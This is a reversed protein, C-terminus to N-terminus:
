SSASTTERKAIALWHKHFAHIDSRKLVGTHKRAKFPTKGGAPFAKLLVAHIRRLDDTKAVGTTKDLQFYRLTKTPAKTPVEAKGPVNQHGSRVGVRPGLDQM